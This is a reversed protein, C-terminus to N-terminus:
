GVALKTTTSILEQVLKELSSQQTSDKLTGDANFAESAKSIALQTPIVLVGINGLIARVHVLGRLGGLAGPSASVLAAVKNKYPMLSQPDKGQRSVWDITNKLLGSISSNYEPCAILLAQHAMFLEKLKLANAPLGEKAELDGDYLPMPYDKLDIFTAQAGAKIALACVVKALKKNFSGERSSGAFILIKAQPM